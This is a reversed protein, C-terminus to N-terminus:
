LSGIRATRVRYPRSTTWDYGCQGCSLTPQGVSGADNDVPELEIAGDYATSCTYTQSGVIRRTATFETGGSLTAGCRPCVIDAIM